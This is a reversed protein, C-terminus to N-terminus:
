KKSRARIKKSKGRDKDKAQLVPEPEPSPENPLPEPEPGPKFPMPPAQAASEVAPAYRFLPLVLVFLAVVIGASFGWPDFRGSLLPSLLIIVLLLGALISAFLMTKEFSKRRKNHAELDSECVYLENNQAIKLKQKIFRIGKIIRDERVAYARKGEVSTQCSICLKM